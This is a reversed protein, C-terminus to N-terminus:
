QNAGSMSDLRRLEKDINSLLGSMEADKPHRDVWNRLLNTMEELRRTEYYLRLLDEM